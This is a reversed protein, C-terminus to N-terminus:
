EAKMGQTFRAKFEPDTTTKYGIYGGVMLISFLGFLIAYVLYVGLAKLFVNVGGGKFLSLYVYTFFGITVLLSGSSLWAYTGKDIFFIPITLMGLFVTMGFTYSSIILHEAYNYGKKRFFMWSAFALIPMSSAIFLHSYSNILTLMDKIPQSLAEGSIKTAYEGQLYDNIGLSVMLLVSLTLMLFLFRFPHYYRITIGNIYDKLVDGPRILLGYITPWLGRDFNFVVGIVSSIGEKITFRNTILKQGCAPCFYGTYQANCSKCSQTSALEQSM